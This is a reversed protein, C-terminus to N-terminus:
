WGTNDKPEEQSDTQDDAPADILKKQAAIWEPMDCDLITNYLIISSDIKSTWSLKCNPFIGADPTKKVNTLLKKPIFTLMSDIVPRIEKVSTVANVNIQQKLKALEVVGYSKEVDVIILLNSITVPNSNNRRPM